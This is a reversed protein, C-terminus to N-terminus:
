PRRRSFNQVPSIVPPVTNVPPGVNLGYVTSIRQVEDASSIEGTPGLPITEVYIRDLDDPTLPSFDTRYVVAVEYQLECYPWENTQKIDGWVHRRAARPIGEFRVNDPNYNAQQGYGRTDLMNTLYPDTWLGNMIAWFAQDLKLESQDPNNNQIIVSLGLKLTHIFGINGANLDGDPVMDEGIIYIGFYPLDLPQVQLMKSKRGTFGTFFPMKMVADFFLDRLVLSYSQTLTITPVNRQHMNM